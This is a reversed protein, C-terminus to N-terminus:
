SSIRIGSYIRDCACWPYPDTRIEPFLRTCAGHQRLLGTRVGVGVRGVEKKKEGVGGGGGFLELIRVQPHRWRYGGVLSAATGESGCRMARGAV